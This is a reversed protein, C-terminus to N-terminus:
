TPFARLCARVRAGSIVVLCVVTVGCIVAHARACAARVCVRTARCAGRAALSLDLWARTAM